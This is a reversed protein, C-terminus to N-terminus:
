AAASAGVTCVPLVIDSYTVGGSSTVGGAVGGLERDSLERGGVQVAMTGGRGEVLAGGKSEVYARMDDLGVDAFGRADLVQRKAAVTPAAEVAARFAGDREMTQVLAEARGLDAM